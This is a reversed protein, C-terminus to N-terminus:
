RATSSRTPVTSPWTSSRIRASPSSRSGSRGPGRKAESRASSPIGVFRLGQKVREGLSDIVRDATSGTGLGVVMGDEVLAAAEDGVQRKLAAEAESEPDAM